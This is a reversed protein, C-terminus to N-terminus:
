VYKNYKEQSTVLKMNKYNKVNEMTKGLTM